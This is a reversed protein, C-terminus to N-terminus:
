TPSSLFTCVEMAVPKNHAGGAYTLYVSQSKKRINKKSDRVLRVSRREFVCSSEFLVIQHLFTGKLIDNIYRYLSLELIRLDVLMEALLAIKLRFAFKLYNRFPILYVFCLV